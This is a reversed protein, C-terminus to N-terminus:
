FSMDSQLLRASHIIHESIGDEGNEMQRLWLGSSSVSLLSGKGSIYKNEIQEFRMMLASAFPNFITTTFVGLALVVAVAPMLFQWVSIGAARAVVLEHTRTLRTLALMSGILVAYPVFKQPLSPINLVAMQVLVGISINDRGAARRLLEIADILVALCLLGFLALLISGLLHRAIYASLIWSLRMM